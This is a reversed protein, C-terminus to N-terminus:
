HEGRALECAFDFPLERGLIRFIGEGEHLAIVTNRDAVSGEGDDHCPDHVVYIHWDGLVNTEHWFGGFQPLNDTGGDSLRAYLRKQEKKNVAPGKTCM